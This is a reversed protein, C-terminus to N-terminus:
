DEEIIPITIYVSSGCGPESEIVLGYAEGYYSKIRNNVNVVGIHEDGKRKEYEPSTIEELREKSFGVGDDYVVIEVADNNKTASIIIVGDEDKPQIGHFIANEVIPQLIFRLMKIKQIEEPIEILLRLEKEYSFRLIKVYNHIYSIEEGITTTEEKFKLTNRLMDNLLGIMKVAEAKKDMDITCKISFLTNYIFHPNIQARMYNLETRRKESENEVLRNVLEHNKRNMTNFSSYLTEIESINSHTSFDNITEKSLRNKELLDNFDMLPRTLKKAFIYTAAGGAFLIAAAAILINIILSVVSTLVYSIPIDEAVTWGTENYTDKILLSSGVIKYNTESDDAVFEQMLELEDETYETSNLLCKKNDYIFVNGLDYKLKTYSKEFYSEEIIVFQTGLFQQGVATYINKFAVYYSSEKRKDLGECIFFGNENKSAIAEKLTKNSELKEYDISNYSNISAAKLGNTGINIVEFGTGLNELMFKYTAKDCRLEYSADKNEGETFTEQRFRSHTNHNYYFLNEIANSYAVISGIKQNILTIENIKGQIKQNLLLEFSKVSAVITIVVISLVLLKGFSRAILSKYKIKKGVM